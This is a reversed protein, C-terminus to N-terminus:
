IFGGRRTRSYELLLSDFVDDLWVQKQCLLYDLLIVYIRLTYKALNLVFLHSQAKKWSIPGSLNQFFINKLVFTFM